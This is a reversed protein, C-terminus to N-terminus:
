RQPPTGSPPALKQPPTFIMAVVENDDDKGFYVLLGSEYLFFELDNEKGVRSPPGWGDVVLKRNFVDPKPELRFTRVLDKRYGSPTLLGFDVTMKNMGTPAKAGDYLWQLTDYGDVKQTRESTPAGYRQRIDSQTTVAPRIQGWDAAVATVAPLVILGLILVLRRM